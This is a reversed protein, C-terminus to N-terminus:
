PGGGDVCWDNRYGACEPACDVVRGRADTACTGCQVVTETGPAALDAGCTGAAGRQIELRLGGRPFYADGGLDGHSCAPDETVYWCASAGEPIFWCCREDTTPDCSQVHCRPVPKHEVGDPAGPSPVRDEVVCEFEAGSTSLDLRPFGSLCTSAGELDRGIAREVASLDPQCCSFFSGRHPPLLAVLKALRIAPDATGLGGACAPQLDPHWNADLGVKVPEPPAAIVAVYLSHPEPKLAKLFDVFEEVPTLQHLPDSDKNGPVCDHRPGADRGPDAGDCLNGFEFCRYSTLPGLVSDLTTQSPDFLTSDPPASCDDEDTLIVIALRADERLFGENAPQACGGPTDCGELAARISALPHEFNCGGGRIGGHCGFADALTGTFNTIPPGGDAAPAYTLFRAEPDVLSATGCTPGNRQNQLMGQDGGITDCSPPTFAGAGMDSTIIGVHLDYDALPQALNPFYQILSWRLPDMSTNDLMFLLDIKKTPPAGFVATTAQYPETSPWDGPGADRTCAAGAVVVLALSV